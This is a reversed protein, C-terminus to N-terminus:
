RAAVQNKVHHTNSLGSSILSRESTTKSITVNLISSNPAVTVGSQLTSESDNLTVGLSDFALM